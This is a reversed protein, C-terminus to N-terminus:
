RPLPRLVYNLTHTQSRTWRGPLEIEVRGIQLQRWGDTRLGNPTLRLPRPQELVFEAGAGRDDRVTISGATVAGESVGGALITAGRKKWGGRAIPLNEVLAQLDCDETATIRVRVHVANDAFRYHRVYDLPLDEVTGTIRLEGSAEDLEFEHGYYDEWWRRGDARTATLGHHTTPAWNAALLVHGYEPVWFGSLGGGLFPTVKRTAVTGGASEANDPFPLRLDKRRAIYFDGAAPKGVYCNAFYDPRKVAVLEDGLNRIFPTPELAPLTASLDPEAYHLYRATTLGPYRPPKPDELFKRLEEIAKGRRDDTPPWRGELPAWLGVEPLVDDVIGKAGGWQEFYFGEAIRHNFNFGGLMKGDPEPAVTHNFFTYSRRLSELVTPDRSMRYYVAEHWHTMGIYSADPGTREMHWGSEHQGRVWRRAYLQALARYLPDGSGDAFAQFAVLYHSSQNRCSVLADTYSRDVIHRLGESWLQRVHAPLHPAALGFVPFTKQAVAFAMMGPYPNLDAGVGRWVDDEGLATLDRLAAAAARFLLERKGLYPNTPAEHLAALALHEAGAGYHSSAGAWLGKVSRLRDWRNEPHPLELRDQWGALSGGWHSTPDLSQSQLWKPVAALFSQRLIGNRIPDALWAAERERPPVVLEETRGVNAPDLLEPLLGIIRAQFKHCVTTGDPLVEVSARIARAADPSPCLILPFGAATFHWPEADPSQFRWIAGHKAVAITVTSSEKGLWGLRQGGADTVVLNTGRLALQEAHQPVYAFLPTDPELWPTHTGNQFSVGYQLRRSLALEVAGQRGGGYSIRLQHVGPERLGLTQRLLLKHRGTASDARRLDINPHAPVGATAAPEIFETYRWFSLQEAPDLARVLLRHHEAEAGERFGIQAACPSGDSVLYVSLAPAPRFLGIRAPLRGPESVGTCHLEDLYFRFGRRGPALNLMLLANPRHAVDCAIRATEAVPAGATDDAVSLLQVTATSGQGRTPLWLRVRYWRGPQYAGVEGHRLETPVGECYSHLSLTNYRFGLGLARTAGNRLELGLHAKSGRGEMRFAFELLLWNDTVTPLATQLGWQATNTGTARDLLLAQRGAAATLNSVVFQDDGQEGWAHHWGSPLEGPVQTEFGQSKVPIQARAAPVFALALSALIARQLQKM